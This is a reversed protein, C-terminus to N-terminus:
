LLFFLINKLHLFLYFRAKDEKDRGFGGGDVMRAMLLEARWLWLREEVVM